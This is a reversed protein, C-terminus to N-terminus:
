SRDLSTAAMGDGQRRLGRDLNSVALWARRIGEQATFLSDAQWRDLGEPLSTELLELAKWADALHVLAPGTPGDANQQAEQLSYLEPINNMQWPQAM